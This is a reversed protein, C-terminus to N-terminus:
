EQGLYRFFVVARNEPLAFVGNYLALFADCLREPEATFLKPEALVAGAGPLNKEANETLGAFEADTPTYAAM